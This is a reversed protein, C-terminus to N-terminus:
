KIKAQIQEIRWSAYWGFKRLQDLTKQAKDKSIFEEDFLKGLFELATTFEIGLTKCATIGRKDDCFVLPRRKKDALAVTDREGGALGFQKEVKKQTEKRVKAIKIKGADFHIQLEFADKYGREIGMEVAETYVSEVVVVQAKKLLYDLLNAKNLLVLSSADVIIEPIERVAM